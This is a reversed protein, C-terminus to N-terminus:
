EYKYVGEGTKRGLKGARVYKRLLPCPRYKSDGIEEHLIEMIHLVTDLGILDAVELPGMPHNAGLKFADDIAEKKAVGEQLTFFAENIMPILIRNVVFGPSDEVEIPTKGLEEVTKWVTDFTEGSTKMGKIVEVLDMVPVPNFFHMGIFKEPADVFGALETIPLSSTNSAIITDGGTAEDLEKFVNEKLDLKEPVAEIVLECDKLDEMKLTTSIRELIENKEDSSIKEKEELRSLNEKITKMGNQLFKKEIDRITVKYGSQASVQAIGAGMQGAGLVGIKNIEM